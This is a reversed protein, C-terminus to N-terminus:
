DFHFKPTSYGAHSPENNGALNETLSSLTKKQEKNQNEIYSVAAEYVAEQEYLELDYFEMLKMGTINAM